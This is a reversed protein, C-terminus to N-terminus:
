NLNWEYTSLIVTRAGFMEKQSILGENLVLGNDETSIGFSFYKEDKYLDNILYDMLYDIAGLEKGEFNAGIYQTHITNNNKFIVSGAIMEEGKFVGFLKINDPFKASLMSMEEVSHTPKTDYKDKLIQEEIRFFSAYDNSEKIELNSKKAKSIGCKKGKSFKIKSELYVLSSPEQKIIKAGQRYLAYIAEESPFLHYIYPVPKYIVKEINAQKLYQKLEEFIQLISVTTMKKDTIIGGFTLGQHSYLSNGVRNAPLVAMLRENEDFFMLSNDEFRDSHYEMFDRFFLFLGNKSNQIFEDWINKNEQSYKKIDM